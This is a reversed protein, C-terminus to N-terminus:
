SLPRRAAVVSKQETNGHLEDMSLQWDPRSHKYDGVPRMRVGQEIPAISIVLM